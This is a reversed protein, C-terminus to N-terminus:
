AHMEYAMAKRSVTPPMPAEDQRRQLETEAGYLLLGEVPTKPDRYKYAIERLRSTTITSPHYKM